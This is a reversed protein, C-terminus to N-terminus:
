LLKFGFMSGDGDFSLSGLSPFFSAVRDICLSMKPLRKCREAVEGLVLKNFGKVKFIRLREIQEFVKMDRIKFIEEMEETNGKIADELEGIMVEIKSSVPRFFGEVESMLEQKRVQLLRILCDFKEYLSEVIQVEQSCVKEKEKLVKELDMKLEDNAEKLRCFAKDLKEEIYILVNTDDISMLGHTGHKSVCDLCLSLGCFSCFIKKDQDLCPGEIKPSAQFLLLNITTSSIILRCQPCKTMKTVCAKCFTHGCTLVLPTNTKLSYKCYCITCTTLTDM